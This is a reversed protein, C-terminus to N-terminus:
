IILQRVATIEASSGGALVAEMGYLDQLLVRDRTFEVPAEGRGRVLTITYVPPSNRNEMAQMATFQGFRSLVYQLDVAPMNGCLFVLQRSINELIDENAPQAAKINDYSLVVDTACQQKLMKVIEFMDKNNIMIEDDFILKFPKGLITRLEMAFYAAYFDYNAKPANILIICDNEIESIMNFRSSCDPTTLVSFARHTANVLSRLNTGGELSARILNEDVQSAAAAAISDDDNRLAEYIMRLSITDRDDLIGLFADTYNLLKSTDRYGRSLAAKSFYDSVINSPIGYFFDYNRYDNDVVYLQGLEGAEAKRILQNKLEPDNSFVVVSDNSTQRYWEIQRLLADRRRRQSGGTILLNGSYNNLFENFNVSYRRGLQQMSQNHDRVQRDIKRM